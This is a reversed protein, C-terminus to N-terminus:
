LFSLLVERDKSDQRRHGQFVQKRLDASLVFDPHMPLERELIRFVPSYGGEAAKCMYELGRREDWLDSGYEGDYLIKGYFYCAPICGDEAAQRVDQIFRGWDGESGYLYGRLFISTPDGEQCFDELIARAQQFRTVSKDSLFVTMAKLRVCSRERNRIGENAAHYADQFKRALIYQRVISAYETPEPQLQDVSLQELSRIRGHLDCERINPDRQLMGVLIDYLAHPINCSDPVSHGVDSGNQPYPCRKTLCEYVTVGLSYIDARSSTDTTCGLEPARYPSFAPQQPLLRPRDKRGVGFGGLIFHPGDADTCVFIHEPRVDGHVINQDACAALARGIDALLRVAYEARLPQSQMYQLLTTMQPLIMMMVCAGTDSGFTGSEKEPNLKYSKLLPMIQQYDTLHQLNELECEFQKKIARRRKKVLANVQTGAAVSRTDTMKVVMPPTTGKLEYVDSFDGGCIRPGLELKPDCQKLYAAAEASSIKPNEVM